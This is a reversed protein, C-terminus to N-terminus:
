GPPRGEVALTQNAFRPDGTVERGLWDPPTFQASAQESAFEVEATVLGEHAGGYVDVEATLGPAVPVLHRTKMLRRRETLPWLAEFRRPDIELEEETRVRGPGSKVTLSARGARRRIRVEVGDPAIALYGQEISDGDGLDDPPQELVFKREIEVGEAV